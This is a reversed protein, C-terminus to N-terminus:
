QTKKEMRRDRKDRWVREGQGAKQRFWPCSGDGRGTIGGDPHCVLRGEGDYLESYFDCCPAPRYYYDRGDIRHRLLQAPPNTLEANQWSLTLAKLGPSLEPLRRAPSPGPLPKTGPVAKAAGEGATPVPESACAGLAAIGLIMCLIAKYGAMM